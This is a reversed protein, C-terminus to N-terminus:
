GELVLFEDNLWFDYQSEDFIFIGTGGSAALPNYLDTVDDLGASGFLNPRVFFAMDSGLDFGGNRDADIYAIFEEGDSNTYEVHMARYVPNDPDRDDFFFNSTDETSGQLLRDLLYDFDANNFLIDEVAVETGAVTAVAGQDDLIERTDAGGDGVLFDTLGLATLDFKDQGGIPGPPEDGSFVFPQLALGQFIDYAAGQSQDASQYVVEFSGDFSREQNLDFVTQDLGQQDGPATISQEVMFIVNGTGLTAGVDEVSFFEVQEGLNITVNFLAEGLNGTAQAVDLLLSGQTLMADTVSHALLDEGPTFDMIRNTGAQGNSVDTGTNVTVFGGEGEVRTVIDYDNAFVFRDLGAGGTLEHNGPSGYLRDDGEGGDLTSDGAEIGIGGFLTDNGAGGLLTDAGFGGFLEDNGDGGDLLNDGNEGFLSDIGGGGLLDADRSGGYLVDRGSGGTVHANDAGGYFINNGEGLVYTNSGFYSLEDFFSTGYIVTDGDNGVITYGAPSEVTDGPAITDLYVELPGEGLASFDFTRLTDDFSLSNEFADGIGGEFIYFSPTFDTVEAITEPSLFLTEFGAFSLPDGPGTGYSFVNFAGVTIGSGAAGLGLATLGGTGTQPDFGPLGAQTIRSVDLSDIQYPRGLLTTLTASLAALDINETISFGVSGFASDSLKLSPM